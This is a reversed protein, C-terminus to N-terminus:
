CQIKLVTLRNNEALIFHPYGFIDEAAMFWESLMLEIESEDAPHIDRRFM